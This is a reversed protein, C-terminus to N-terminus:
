KTYDAKRKRTKTATKATKEEKETALKASKKVNKAQEPQVDQMDQISMQGAIQTDSQISVDSKNFGDVKRQTGATRLYESVSMQSLRAKEKITALDIDNLRIVITNTKNAM